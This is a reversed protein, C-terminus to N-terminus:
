RRAKRADDEQVQALISEQGTAGSPLYHPGLSYAIAARGRSL